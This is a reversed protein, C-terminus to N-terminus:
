ISDVIAVVVVDAAGPGKGESVIVSVASDIGDAGTVELAGAGTALTESSVASDAAAAAARTTSLTTSLVTAATSVLLWIGGNTTLAAVSFAPIVRMCEAGNMVAVALPSNVLLRGSCCCCARGGGVCGCAKGAVPCDSGGIM